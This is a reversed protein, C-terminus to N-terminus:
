NEEQGRDSGNNATSSQLAALRGPVPDEDAAVQLAWAEWVQLEPLQPMGSQGVVAAVYARIQQAQKWIEAEALLGERCKAEKARLQAELEHKRTLEDFAARQVALLNQKKEEERASERARVIDPYFRDFVDNLHDELRLDVKDVFEVASRHKRDVVLALRDTPIGKKTPGWDYLDTPKRPVVEIEQRERVAISFWTEEYTLKPFGDYENIGVIFGRAEAAFLLANVIALARQSTLESVRFCTSHHRPGMRSDSLSLALFELNLEHSNGKTKKASTKKTNERYKARANIWSHLEDRFPVLVKHWIKPPIEVVIRNEDREEFAFRSQLWVTDEQRKFELQPRPPPRCLFTTREAGEPLEIRSIEQGAEIRAWHGVKPLPINMAKCVKRIGNDSMGYKEGLKTLPTSWVEEYLAQREFEIEM